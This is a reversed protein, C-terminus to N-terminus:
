TREMRYLPRLFAEWVAAAKERPSGGDNSASGIVDERSRNPLKQRTQRRGTSRPPAPDTIQPDNAVGPRRSSGGPRSGVASREPSRRRSPPPPRRTRGARAAGPRGRERARCPTRVPPGGAGPHAAREGGRKHGRPVHRRARVPRLRRVPILGDFSPAPRGARRVRSRRRGSGPSPAPARSAASAPPERRHPGRPAPRRTRAPSPRLPRRPVPAPAASPLTVAAVARGGPGARTLAPNRARGWEGSRGRPGPPSRRDGRGAGGWADM